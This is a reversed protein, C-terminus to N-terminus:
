QKITALMNNRSHRIHKKLANISRRRDNRIIGELVEIHESLAAQAREVSDFTMTRFIQLRSTIKNLLVELNSCGAKDIILKHLRVDLKAGECIFESNELQLCHKFESQLERAKDIEFNDFAHRLAMCELHERIEYIERIEEGDLKAVFCSSRPYIVVIHDEALKRLAERVPARSIGLEACIGLETIKDGQKLKGAAIKECVHDYVREALSKKEPQERV